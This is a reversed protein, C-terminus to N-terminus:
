ETELEEAEEELVMQETQETGLTLDQEAEAREARDQLHPGHVEVVAEVIPLAQDPFVTPLETAAMEQEKLHEMQALPRHEEAEAELLKEALKGTDPAEM